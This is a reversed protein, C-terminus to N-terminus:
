YYQSNSLKLYNGDKLNINSKGNFNDNDIIDHKGIPGDLIAYYGSGFSEVTYSGPAIDYGVKYLGSQQYDLVDNVIEYLEKAGSVGLTNLSTINVLVGGNSINGVEHVYVYGFSDFNENDIINGAADEESYYQGSGQYKIFVYEGKPIDGKIYDGSDFALDTEMLRVIKNIMIDSDSLILPTTVTTTKSTPATSVNTSIQNSNCGTVLFVLLVFLPVIGHKIKLNIM